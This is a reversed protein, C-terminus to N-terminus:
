IVATAVVVVVAAALAQVSYDSMQPEGATNSLVASM